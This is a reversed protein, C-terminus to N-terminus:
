MYQPILMTQPPKFHKNLEQTVGVWLNVDGCLNFLISIITKCQLLGSVWSIVDGHVLLIKVMFFFSEVIYVRYNCIMFAIFDKLYWCVYTVWPVKNVRDNQFVTVIYWEFMQTWEHWCFHRSNFRIFLEQVTFLVPNWLTLLVKLIYFNM